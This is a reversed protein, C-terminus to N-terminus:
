PNSKNFPLTTSSILAPTKSGLILLIRCNFDATSAQIEIILISVKILSSGSCLSSSPCPCQHNIAKLHLFSRRYSPSTINRSMVIHFFFFCKGTIQRNGTRSNGINRTWQKWIDFNRLSDSLSKSTGMGNISQRCFHQSWSELILSKSAIDNKRDKTCLCNWCRKQFTLPKPDLDIMREREFSFRRSM